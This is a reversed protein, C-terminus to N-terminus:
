YTASPDFAGVVNLAVGNTNAANTLTTGGIFTAATPNFIIGGVVASSVPISPFVIGALTTAQALPLTSVVGAANIVFLWLGFNNQLITGVLAPFAIANAISVLTPNPTGNVANLGNTSRGGVIGTWAAGTAVTAAASVTVAASGLSQTSLANYFVECLKRLSRAQQEDRFASLRALMNEAAM